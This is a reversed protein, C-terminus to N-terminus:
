CLFPWETANGPLLLIERSRCSKSFKSPYATEFLATVLGMTLLPFSLVSFLLVLNLPSLNEVM